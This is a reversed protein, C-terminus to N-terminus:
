AARHISDGPPRLYALYQRDFERLAAEVTEGLGVISNGRATRLTAIWKGACLSLAPRRVAAPSGSYAAYYLEARELAALMATAEGNNNTQM